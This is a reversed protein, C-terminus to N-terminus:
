EMCSLYKRLILGGPSPNSLYGTGGQSFLLKRSQKYWSFLWIFCSINLRIHTFLCSGKMGVNLCGGPKLWSAPPRTWWPPVQDPSQDGAWWQRVTLYPARGWNGWRALPTWGWPILVLLECFHYTINVHVRRIFSFLRFIVHFMIFVPM